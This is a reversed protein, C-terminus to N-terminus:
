THDHIYCPLVHPTSSHIIMSTVPFPLLMHRVATYSWLHLLFPCSCTAYQMHCVTTCQWLGVWFKTDRSWKDWSCFPSLLVVSKILVARSSLGTLLVIKYASFMMSGYRTEFCPSSFSPSPLIPFYVEIIIM